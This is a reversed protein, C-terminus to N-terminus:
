PYSARVAPGVASKLAWFSFASSNCIRTSPVLSTFDVFVALRQCTATCANSLLVLVLLLVLLLLVVVVVVLLLLSLPM